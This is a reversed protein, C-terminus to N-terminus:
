RLGTLRIEGGEIVVDCYTTETITGGFANEARYRAAVTTIGDQRAHVQWSLRDVPSFSDPNHLNAKIFESCAWRAGATPDQAREPADGTMGIAVIAATLGFLPLTVFKTLKRMRRLKGENRGARM